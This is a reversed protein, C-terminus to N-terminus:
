TSPRTGLSFLSIHVRIRASLYTHRALPHGVYRQGDTRGSCAFILCADMFSRTDYLSVNYSVSTASCGQLRLRPTRRPMGTSPCSPPRPHLRCPPLQCPLHRPRATSSLPTKYPCAGFVHWHALRVDSDPATRSVAVVKWKLSEKHSGLGGRAVTYGNDCLIFMTSTSRRPPLRHGDYGLTM